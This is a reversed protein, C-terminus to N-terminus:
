NTAICETGTKLSVADNKAKCVRIPYSDHRKIVWVQNAFVNKEQVLMSNANVNGYSQEDGNEDILYIRCYIPNHNIFIM